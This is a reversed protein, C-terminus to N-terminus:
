RRWFFGSYAGEMACIRPESFVTPIRSKPLFSLVRETWSEEPAKEDFWLRGCLPCTANLVPRFSGCTGTIAVPRSRALGLCPKCPTPERHWMEVIRGLPWTIGVFLVFFLFGGKRDM